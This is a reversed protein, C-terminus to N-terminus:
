WSFLVWQPVSLSTDLSNRRLFGTGDSNPVLYYPRGWRPTVKVFKLQGGIRVEETTENDRRTITVQPELDANNTYPPAPPAPAENGPPPPPPPPPVQSTSTGAVFGLALTVAVALRASPRM